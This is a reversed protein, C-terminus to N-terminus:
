KELGAQKVLAIFRPEDRVTDWCPEVKLLVMDQTETRAKELYDLAQEKDGLHASLKALYYAREGPLDKVDVFEALAEMLDRKELWYGKGGGDAYAQRLVNYRIGEGAEASL